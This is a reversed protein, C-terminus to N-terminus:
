LSANKCFHKRAKKLLLDLDKKLSNVEFELEHITRCESSICEYDKFLSSMGIFIYAFGSDPFPKKRPPIYLLDLRRSM